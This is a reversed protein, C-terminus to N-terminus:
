QGEVLQTERERYIDRGAEREAQSGREYETEKLRHHISAVHTLSSSRPACHALVVAHDMAEAQVSHLM